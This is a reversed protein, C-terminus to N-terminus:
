LVARAARPPVDKARFERSTLLPLLEDRTQSLTLNEVEFALAAEWLGKMLGDLKQISSDDPLAVGDDLHHRQIHGMTTAKDAAISKFQELKARVAQNLLWISVGPNPIVKFIHQNVIAEPRCWRSVTLSGSWAFLLDGPRATNDDPVEIDNYVTSQGIGSNLEAIRVVVRGAGTANKTFAKGNVFRALSSLPVENERGVASSFHSGAVRDALDVVRENAAIKAEVTDLLEVLSVTRATPAPFEYAFFDERPFGMTTTGTAHSRCYDRYAPTRLMWYVFNAGVESTKLDLRVTDQTLRGIPAGAPVRSVAGLLDATQTVDKLSAYLQGPRVLLKEPSDGGYTRLSDSRYGGNRRISGLGLLVPGPEDLLASKYTTGREVSVVDGLKLVQSM